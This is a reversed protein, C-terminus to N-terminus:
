RNLLLIKRHGKQVQVKIIKLWKSIAEDYSLSKSGDFDLHEVSYGIPETPLMNIKVPFAHKALRSAFESAIIADTQFPLHPGHQEWAGLPLVTITQNLENNMSQGAM